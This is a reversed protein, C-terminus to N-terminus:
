ASSLETKVDLLSRITSLRSASQEEQQDPSMKRKTAGRFTTLYSIAEEGAVETMTDEGIERSDNVCAQHANSVRFLSSLFLVVRWIRGCVVEEIKVKEGSRKM